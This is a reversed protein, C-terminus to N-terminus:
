LRHQGGTSFLVLKKRGKKATKSAGPKGEQGTLECYLVCSVLIENSQTTACAAKISATLLADTFGNTFADKFSPVTYYNEDDEDEM